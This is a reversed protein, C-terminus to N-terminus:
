SRSKRYATPTVRTHKKFYNSFHAPENFGLRYAIEKATLQTHQLLTKAEAINRETIWTNVSKGTKTKIVTNLYNPHLHQDDAYEQVHLVNDTKGLRVEQYHNELLQKFRRVIQSSRNGEQIPNYHQWFHEKMKLLLVVLLHGILQNRYPSHSQYERHIQQYVREFEKFLSPSLSRIPLNEDLLFPFQNFIQPHVHEQLFSESFTILMVDDIEDWRYSRLHGPNTFYFAYPTLKYEQEDVVYTGKGRKIFDFVFFDLRSTEAQYPLDHFVENLNFITFGEPQRDFVYGLGMAHYQEHLNPYVNIKKPEMNNHQINSLLITFKNSVISLFDCPNTLFKCPYTCGM